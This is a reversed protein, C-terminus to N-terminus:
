RGESAQMDIIMLCYKKGNGTLRHHQPKYYKKALYGNQELWHAYRDREEKDEFCKHETIRTSM